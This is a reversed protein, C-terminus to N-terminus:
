PSSVRATAASNVTITGTAWILHWLPTMSQVSASATVVVSDGARATVISAPVIPSAAARVISVIASDPVIADIGQRAGSAVARRLSSSTTMVRGVDIIGLALILLVPLALVLEVTAHGLRARVRSM